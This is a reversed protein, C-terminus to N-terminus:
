WDSCVSDGEMETDCKSMELQNKKLRPHRSTKSKQFATDPLYREKLRDMNIILILKQQSKM